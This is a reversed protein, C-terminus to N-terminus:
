KKSLGRAIENIKKKFTFIACYEPMFTSTEKYDTIVTM